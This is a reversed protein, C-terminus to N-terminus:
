QFLYTTKMHQLNNNIIPGTAIDFDSQKEGGQPTTKLVRGDRKRRGGKGLAWDRKEKNRV